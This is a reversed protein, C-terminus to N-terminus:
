EAARSDPNEEQYELSIKATVMDKIEGFSMASELQASSFKSIDVTGPYARGSEPDVYPLSNPNYLMYRIFIVAESYSTDITQNEYVRALFIIASFMILIFLIRFSWYVIDYAGIAKKHMM